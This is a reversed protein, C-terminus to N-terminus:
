YIRFKRTFESVNNFDDRAIIKIIYDGTEPLNPLSQRYSQPSTKNIIQSISFIETTDNDKYVKVNFDYIFGESNNSRFDEFLFNLNIITDRPFQESEIPRIVNINPGLSDLKNKVVLYLTVQEAQNGSADVADIIIKYNGAVSYKDVKVTVSEKAKNEKLKKVVVKNFVKALANIEDLQNFNGLENKVSLRYQSLEKNDKFYLETLFDEDSYVNLLDTSSPNIIKIIPKSTDQSDITCANFVGLIVICILNTFLRHKFM